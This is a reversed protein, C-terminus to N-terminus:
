NNEERWIVTLNNHKDCIKKYYDKLDEYLNNPEVILVPIGYIICIQYIAKCYSSRHWNLGLIVEDCNSLEEIGVVINQLRPYKVGMKYMMNDNVINDFTSIFEVEEAIIDTKEKLYDAKATFFQREIQGRTSRKGIPTSVFVKKTVGTM